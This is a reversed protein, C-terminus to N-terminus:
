GAGESERIQRAIFDREAPLSALAAAQRFHTLAETRNGLEAAFTGRIVHFLHNPKLKSRDKIAGLAELGARHAQPGARRSGARNMAAIPSAKLTVSNITSPSSRAAL